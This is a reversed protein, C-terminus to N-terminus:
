ARGRTRRQARPSSPKRGLTALLRDEEARMARRGASSHDDMGTLHLAGHIVYRLVEEGWDVGLQGAQHRATEASVVIEGEIETTEPDDRLDFALVDTPREEGMFREHLNAMTADDVIAVSISRLPQGGLAAQVARTILPSTIGPTPVIRRIRIGREGGEDAPTDSQESM